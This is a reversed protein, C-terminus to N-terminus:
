YKKISFTWFPELKSFELTSIDFDAAKLMDLIETKDFRHELRTGFRDLADNALIIFPMNAYHHLPFNSSNIHFRNLLKSFRALPFYIFIAILFAVTRKGSQPIRSIFFRAFNVLKFMIRYFLPKDDLKYYLYCLFTGGSKIRSSIDKIALGTDPVHHLVGLSVALDISELPISNIGVTEQLLLVKPNNKFKTRLVKQAGESPELAYIISFYQALRETWRGSGAGFDAAISYDPNFETFKIRDTYARFQRDLFESSYDDMYSFTSWELGFSDILKLDLNKESSVINNRTQLKRFFTFFKMMKENHKELKHRIISSAM